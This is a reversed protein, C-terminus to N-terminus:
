KFNGKEDFIDSIKIEEKEGEDDKDKKDEKKPVFSVQQLLNGNAIILNEKEKNLKEIEKEKNSITDVATTNATVIKALDDAVQGSLDDGIKEKISDIINNLEEQEM